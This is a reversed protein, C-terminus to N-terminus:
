ASVLDDAHEAEDAARLEPENLSAARISRALMAIAVFQTAGIVLVPWLAGALVALWGRSVPRLERGAAIMATAIVAISTTILWGSLYVILMTTIVAKENQSL